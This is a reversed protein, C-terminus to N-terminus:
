VAVIGDILQDDSLITVVADGFMVTFEGAGTQEVSQGDVADFAEFDEQSDLIDGGIVLQDGESLDFGRILAEEAFTVIYFDAGGGGVLQDSGEDAFLVDNGAEGRLRDNGLGGRLVDNGGGGFLKDNGMGGRLDDNGTGGYLLDRGAGGDLTDNGAQGRARDDGDGLNIKDDGGRGQVIDDGGEASIVNNGGDGVIRDDGNTGVTVDIEVTYLVARADGELDAQAPNFLLVDVAGTVQQVQDTVGQYGIFTSADLRVTMETEGSQFRVRENRFAGAFDGQGFVEVGVGSAPIFVFPPLDDLDITIVLGDGDLVATEDVVVTPVASDPLPDFENIYQGTGAVITHGIDALLALEIDGVTVRDGPVVFPNMLALRLDTANGDGDTLAGFHSTDSGPGVQYELPVADGYLNVSNAGTFVPQPGDFDILLDYLAGTILDIPGDPGNFTFTPLGGTAADTFGLFGLGHGIEHLIVSYFDFLGAPVDDDLEPDFFFQGGSVLDANVNINIDAGAGNPDDGTQLESITGAEVLAFDGDGIQGDGDLDFVNDVTFTGPGASAVSTNRNISVDVELSAGPAGGLYSAWTGMALETITQFLAITGADVGGVDDFIEVSFAFGEGDTPPDEAAFIASADTSLTAGFDGLSLGNLDTAVGDFAMGDVMEELHSQCGCSLTLTHGADEVSAVRFDDLEREDTAFLPESADFPM